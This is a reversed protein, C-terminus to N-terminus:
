PAPPPFMQVSFQLVMRELYWIGLCWRFEGKVDSKRGVRKEEEWWYMLEQSDWRTWGPGARKEGWLFSPRASTIDHKQVGEGLAEKM